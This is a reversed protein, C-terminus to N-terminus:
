SDLGSFQLEYLTKYLGGHRLLEEHTGSERIEGHHMVLIRDATRITSLRHAIVLSTRGQMLTKMADQILAETETDINSTAEDLVLIEPQHALTRAFAILQRQGSSLNAGREGVRYDYGGPLREIFTAAHVKDACERVWEQSLTADGLRINNEVTDNFLFVNQLVIGIHQRMANQAYDRVDVGDIRVVGRQPDYFRGLMNILTTKGAGTHGVVAVREGPAITFSVDRLVWRSGDEAEADPHETEALVSGAGTGYSFWVRDFQVEGRLRSPQVPAAPDVIDPATDMLEFVRESSALAELLMNYRDALGRIPVYLRETWYVYGVLTGFSALGTVESGMGLVQTGVYLLILATSLGSFFEIAPFYVAFNRVQTLWEDRHDANKRDYEAFVARQRDLIQVLHIGGMTEQMFASIGAIKRRIELFSKSAFKRFVWSTLFIFPLPLLAIAALQWNVYFMFILVAIITLTGSLGQVVGMVISQQIKDVDSTVRSMLRGVPNRDLFSLPLEQIHRFLDMRMEFMTRQGVWTVILLQISRVIAELFVIGALLLTTNLLGSIIGAVKDPDDSGPANIYTDVAHMMLLPSANSLCSAVLLLFLSVWMQRKYPRLLLLLRRLLSWEFSRSQVEDAVHYSDSSM